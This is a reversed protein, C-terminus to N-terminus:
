QPGIISLPFMKKGYHIQTGALLGDIDRTVLDCQYKHHHPRSGLGLRLPEVGIVTLTFVSITSKHRSISTPHCDCYFFFSKHFIDLLPHIRELPSIALNIMGNKNKYHPENTHM